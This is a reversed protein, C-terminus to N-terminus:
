QAMKEKEYWEKAFTYKEPTGIDLIYEDTPYGYVKHTGILKPLVESDFKISKKEPIFDAIKKSLVSLGSNVYMHDVFEKIGHPRTIWSTIRHTVPDLVAVEGNEPLDSRKLILTALANKKTHFDIVPTFDFFHLHDGYLLVFDEQLLPEVKKIAGGTELLEDSEDSYIIRLGISRGDGFYDVIKEPFHHLNVIVEEFGQRKLLRLIHELLPQGGIPVMVKPMGNTLPRLRTGLGASLVVAQTIKREM